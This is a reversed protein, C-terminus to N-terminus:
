DSNFFILFDFAACVPCNLSGTRPIGDPDEEM